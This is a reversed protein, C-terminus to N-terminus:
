VIGLVKTNGGTEQIPGLSEKAFSQEYPSETSDNERESQLIQQRLDSSNKKWKRLSFGGAKMREKAKSYLSFAEVVNACGIVLDDICFSQSVQM